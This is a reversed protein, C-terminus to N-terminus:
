ENLLKVAKISKKLRGLAEEFSIDPIQCAAMTRHGGGGMNEMVLQVNVNGFSRASINIANGAKFLVYSAEVGDVCLLEDAAQGAIVRVNESEFDVVGVASGGFIVANKVVESKEKQTKLSNSFLRKVAVTDAGAARLYAATEFTAVGTKMVFSKTDLMIGSM